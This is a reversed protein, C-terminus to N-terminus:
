AGELQKLVADTVRGIASIPSNHIEKGTARITPINWAALYEDRLEDHDKDHTEAGDCEVCVIRTVGNLRTVVAFDMRYKAFAFQPVIVVDGDPMALQRKPSHVSAPISLIKNGYDAFVLWPLIRKEIPTECWELAAGIFASGVAVANERMQESMGFDTVRRALMEAALDTQFATPVGATALDSEDYFSSRFADGLTQMGRM